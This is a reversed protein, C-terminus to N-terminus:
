NQLAKLRKKKKKCGDTKPTTKPQTPPPQAHTAAEIKPRKIKRLPLRGKQLGDDGDDDDDDDHNNNHAKRAPAPRRKPALARLAPDPTHSAAAVYGPGATPPALTAHPDQAESSPDPPPLPNLQSCLLSIRTLINDSSM